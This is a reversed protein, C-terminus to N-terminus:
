QAAGPTEIDATISGDPNRHHTPASRVVHQQAHFVAHTVLERAHDDILRYFVRNGDQRAEVIKGWRLKALHQSTTTPAKSIEEALENVSKETDRM